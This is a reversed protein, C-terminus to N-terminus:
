WLQAKNNLRLANYGMDFYIIKNRSSINTPMRVKGYADESYVSNCQIPPFGDALVKEISINWNPIPSNIPIGKSYIETWTGFGSKIGSSKSSIQFRLSGMYDKNSNQNNLVWVSYWDGIKDTSDKKLTITYSGAEWDYWRRVSIFDGEYGASESWGGNAIISNSLDRTSWRSFIFGKKGKTITQFGYYFGITDNLYANYFQFYIGDMNPSGDWNTPMNQIRITHEIKTFTPNAFTYNAYHLGGIEGRSVNNTTISQPISKISEKYSNFASISYFYKTNIKLGTDIYQNIGKNISAILITPNSITDRYIKYGTLTNESNAQWSITDLRYGSKLTIGIPTSISSDIIENIKAEQSPKTNESKSCSALFYLIFLLYSFKYM